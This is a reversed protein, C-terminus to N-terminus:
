TSRLRGHFKAKTTHQKKRAKLAQQAEYVLHEKFKKEQEEKTLDTYYFLPSGDDLDQLERYWTYLKEIGAEQGVYKEDEMDEKETQFVKTYLENDILQMIHFSDSPKTIMQELYHDLLINASETRNPLSFSIETLAKEFYKQREYTPNNDTMGALIYLSESEYGEILADLALQPLHSYSYEGLVYKCIKEKFKM